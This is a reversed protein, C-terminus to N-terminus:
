AVHQGKTQEAQRQREGVLVGTTYRHAVEASNPPCDRFKNGTRRFAYILEAESFRELWRTLQKDDPATGTAYISWLRRVSDLSEFLSKMTM